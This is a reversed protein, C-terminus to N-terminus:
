HDRPHGLREAEPLQLARVDLGGLREAAPSRAAYLESM